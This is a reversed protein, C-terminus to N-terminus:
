VYKRSLFFVSLGLSISPSLSRCRRYLLINFDSNAVGYVSSWGSRWGETNEFPVTLFFSTMPKKSPLLTFSSVMHHFCLPLILFFVCFKRLTKKIRKLVSIVNFSTMNLSLKFKFVVRTLVLYTKLKNKM